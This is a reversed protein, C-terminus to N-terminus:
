KAIDAIRSIKDHLIDNERRLNSNMELLRGVREQLDRIKMEKCPVDDPMECSCDCLKPSQANACFDHPDPETARDDIVDPIQSCLFDLMKHLRGRYQKGIGGTALESILQNAIHARNLADGLDEKSARPYFNSEDNPADKKDGCLDYLCGDSKLTGGTAYRAADNQYADKGDAYGKEYKPETLPKKNVKDAANKVAFAADIMGHMAKKLAELNQKEINM